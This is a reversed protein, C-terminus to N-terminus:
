RPMVNLEGRTMCAQLGTATAHVLAIRYRGPAMPPLRSRIHFGADLPYSVKLAKAVDPRPQGTEGTMAVVDPGSLVLMFRPPPLIRRTTLWGSFSVEDGERATAIAPHLGNLTDLACPNKAPLGALDFDALEALDNGSPLPLVPEPATAAAPADVSAPAPLAATKPGGEGCGVLCGMAIILVAPRISSM